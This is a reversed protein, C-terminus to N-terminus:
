EQYRETCKAQWQVCWYDVLFKLVHRDLLMLERAWGLVQGVSGALPQLNRTMLQLGYCRHRQLLELLAVPLEKNSDTELEHLLEMWPSHSLSSLFSKSLSVTLGVSNSILSSSLMTTTGSCVSTKRNKEKNEAPASLYLSKERSKITTSGEYVWPFISVKM